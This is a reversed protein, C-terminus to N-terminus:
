HYIMDQISLYFYVKFCWSFNSVKANLSIAYSFWMWASIFSLQKKNKKKKLCSETKKKCGECKQFHLLLYRCIDSFFIFHGFHGPILQIRDNQSSFHSFVWMNCKYSSLNHNLIHAACNGFLIVYRIGSCKQHWVKSCIDWPEIAM